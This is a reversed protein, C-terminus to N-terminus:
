PKVVVWSKEEAKAYLVNNYRQRMVNRFRMEMTKKMLDLLLPTSIFISGEMKQFLFFGKLFFYVKNTNINQHLFVSTPNLNCAFFARSIWSAM